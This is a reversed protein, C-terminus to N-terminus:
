NCFLPFNVFNGCKVCCDNTKIEYVIQFRRQSTVPASFIRKHLIPRIKWSARLAKRIRCSMQINIMFYKQKSLFINIITAVRSPDPSPQDSSGPCTVSVPDGTLLILKINVRVIEWIWIQLRAYCSFWGDTYWGDSWIWIWINVGAPSKSGFKGASTSYLTEWESGWGRGGM